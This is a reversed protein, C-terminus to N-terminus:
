GGFYLRQEFFTVSRPFGRYTSWAGERWTTQATTAGFAILVTANVQTSSTFSTIRAVGRTGVHTISILAGPETGTPAMTSVFYASSATITIAGTTASPQMTIATANDPLYPGDTFTPETITWATHGTRTLKRPWHNKHAIYMVDATQAYQLEMLDAEPFESAIEYPVGPSSEIQGNDKYFRIYLDGFELIYAQTVSFEFEVLRVRKAANKVPAVYHSGPRRDAGGHPMVLFNQLESVGAAYRSIDERGLLRPSLEGATFNTQAPTVHAM